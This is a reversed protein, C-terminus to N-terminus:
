DNFVKRVLFYGNKTQHANSLAEEQSLGEEVIDDRMINETGITQSTIPVDKTDLDSFTNVAEIATNLNESYLPIQDEDIHIKILDAVSKTTENDIKTM